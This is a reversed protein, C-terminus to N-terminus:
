ANSASSARLRQGLHLEADNGGPIRREDHFQRGADIGGDALTRDGHGIGDTAPAAGQHAVDNDAVAGDGDIEIRHVDIRIPQLVLDGPGRTCGGAWPQRCAGDDVNRDTVAPFFPGIQAADGCQPLSVGLRM